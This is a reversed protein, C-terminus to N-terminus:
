HRSACVALVRRFTDSNAQEREAINRENQRYPFLGANKALTEGIENVDYVEHGRSSGVYHLAQMPRIIAAPTAAEVVLFSAHLMRTKGPKGPYFVSYNPILSVYRGAQGHRMKREAERHEEVLCENLMWAMGYQYVQRPDQLDIKHKDVAGCLTLMKRWENLPGPLQRHTELTIYLLIPCATRAKMYNAQYATDTLGSQSQPSLTCMWDKWLLDYGKNVTDDTLAQDQEQEQFLSADSKKHVQVKINPFDRRLKRAQSRVEAIQKPDFEFFVFEEVPYNSAFLRELIFSTGPLTMIRMKSQVQARARVKAIDKFINAHIGFKVPRKSLIQVSNNHDRM